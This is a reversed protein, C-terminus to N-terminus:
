VHQTVRHKCVPMHQELSSVLERVFLRQALGASLMANADTAAITFGSGKVSIAISTMDHRPIWELFLFAIMDDAFM